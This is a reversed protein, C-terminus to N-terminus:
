GQSEAMQYKESEDIQSVSNKTIRKFVNVRAANHAFITILPSNIFNTDSLQQFLM